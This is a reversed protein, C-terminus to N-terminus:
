IENEARLSLYQGDLQDSTPFRVLLTHEGDMMAALPALIRSSAHRHTMLEPRLIDKCISFVVKAKPKLFFIIM